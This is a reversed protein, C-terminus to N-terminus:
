EAATLGRAAEGTLACERHVARVAELIADPVTLAKGGGNRQALAPLSEAVAAAGTFDEGRSYRSPTILTVLGAASAARLGNESDEVAICDRPPLALSALAANFVDPAPKKRPVSDGAAIVEFAALGEKGLTSTILADVNPRSTTTAIALRVGDLLATEILREVGPRLDIGGAAVVESYIATKRWHLEAILLSVATPSMGLGGASDIFFALREKGGTVKLLEGYLTESWNWGLGAEAFARNFATRHAEETEALTGDVDFIIAKLM